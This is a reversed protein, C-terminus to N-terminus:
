SKKMPWGSEDVDHIPDLLLLDAMDTYKHLAPPEFTPREGPSPEALEAAPAAGSAPVPEILTERELVRLFDRIAGAIMAPDGAYRRAMARSIDDTAAGATLLNWVEAGLRTTSFYAGTDFDIIVTEGDITQHAVRPTCVQFYGAISTPVSATQENAQV